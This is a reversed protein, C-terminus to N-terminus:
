RLTKWGLAVLAIRLPPVVLLVPAGFGFGFFLNVPLLAIGLKGGRRLSKWLWYGAFGELVSAAILVFEFAIVGDFGFLLGIRSGEDPAQIGFVVPAARYYATYALLLPGAVTFAMGLLLFLISAASIAWHRSSEM